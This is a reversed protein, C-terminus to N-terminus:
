TNRYFVQTAASGYYWRSLIKKGVVVRVNVSNPVAPATFSLSMTYKAPDYALTGNADLLTRWANGGYQYEINGANLRITHLTGDKDTYRFSTASLITGAAAESMGRRNVQGAINEGWIMKDLVLRADNTLEVNSQYEYQANHAFNAFAFVGGTLLLALTSAAAVEVLTMGKQSFIKM